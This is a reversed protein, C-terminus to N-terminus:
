IIGEFTREGRIIARTDDEGLMLITRERAHQSAKSLASQTFGSMSFIVGAVVPPREDLRGKMHHVVSPQVREKLWKAECLYFSSGCEVVSSLIEDGVRDTEDAGIM